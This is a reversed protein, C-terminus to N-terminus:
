DTPSASQATVTAQTARAQAASARARPRARTTTGGLACLAEVEDTFATVLAEPHEVVDADVKFGVHISGDYSFIATGLTQHGSEPAWGLMSAIRTGGLYRTTRPGPVNTTVGSAKDAFFDSLVRELDPGTLGIGQILGFTLAAEPSDKIASMRRRTEALREFPTDLGSPLVLLVLAFRNGLARPLPQDLPRVNVPVMTPIDVVDGHHSRVYTALAGALAAVLVDNLTCGTEHAAQLVPELPIPEAWVARKRVQPNGTVPTAPNRTFLLKAGTGAVQRVTTVGHGLGPGWRAPALLAPAQALGAGARRGVALAASVPNRGEADSPAAVEGEPVLPADPREDTLSLVVQVLAMGDAMSHHLRSYVATQDGYGTLVHIEWLPRDRPLARGLRTDVYERLEAEGGPSALAVVHLHRDFSFDPDDEWHPAKLPVRSPVPRQHFVPYRDIVRHHMVERFRDLDLPGDLVMLSEVVMLNDARDMNLWITDVPEITRRTM